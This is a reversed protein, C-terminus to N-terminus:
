LLINIFPIGLGIIIVAEVAVITMSYKYVDGAALWKKNGFLMAAFPSAAPTCAATLLVTFILLAIIPAPNVNATACYTLAVPQLIM